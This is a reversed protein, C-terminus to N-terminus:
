MTALFRPVIAGLQALPVLMPLIFENRNVPRSALLVYVKATQACLLMSTAPGVDATLPAVKFGALGGLGNDIRRVELVSEETVSLQRDAPPVEPLSPDTSWM